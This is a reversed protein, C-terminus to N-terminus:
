IFGYINNLVYMGLIYVYTGQCAVSGLANEDCMQPSWIPCEVLQSENGTCNLSRLSIPRSSDYFLTGDELPIAGTNCVYMSLKM